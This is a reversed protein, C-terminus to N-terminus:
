PLMKTLKLHCVNLVLVCSFPIYSMSSFYCIHLTSCNEHCICITYIGASAAQVNNGRSDRIHLVLRTSYNKHVAYFDEVALAISTRAEKGVMSGLDLIVGVHFEDAGPKAANQAVGSHVIILLLFVITQPAREM